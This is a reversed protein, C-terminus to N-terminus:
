PQTVRVVKAWSPVQGTGTAVVVTPKVAAEPWPTDCDTVVVVADALKAAMEMAPRLDTGGGGTHKMGKRGRQVKGARADCDIVLTQYKRVVDRVTALVKAGDGGMSGSTDVVLGIRVVPAVSGPRVVAGPRTRRHIRAYSYDARAAKLERSLKGILNSFNRDWSPPLKGKAQEEAWMAIGAPVSGRGHQKIHEVVSNATAEVIGQEEEQTPGQGDGTEYERKGGGAGSGCDKGAQDQIYKLYEEATLGDEAGLRKPLWPDEPLALGCDDNIECDGAVNWAPQPSATMKHRHPHRRLLHEREHGAILNARADSTLGAYWDMDVYLGWDASVGITGLGDVAMPRLAALALGYYPRKTRALILANEVMEAEVSTLERAQNM